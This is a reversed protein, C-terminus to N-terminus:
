RVFEVRLGPLPLGAFTTHWTQGAQIPLADTLTGTSIIEGARLPLAKPQTALLAQLHILTNLPSDLVAAGGGHAIPKGDCHLTIKFNALTEIPKTLQSIPLPTGVILTGHLGFAAVTDPAAFRWNPFPSAVIEYAHAVWEISSLWQAPTANKPPTRKLKFAIEPEIRPELAGTLSQRGTDNTAFRVTRDYMHAWIPAAVNYQSWISRNTFGIKRGIAVEGAAQRQRLVARGVAYGDDLSFNAETQTLPTLRRAEARAALVRRALGAVDM